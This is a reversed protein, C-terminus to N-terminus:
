ARELVFVCHGQACAGEIGHALAVNAGEIQRDGAENRLQIVVEAVRALGAALVPHASLVGGSPNIPLGGKLETAGSDILDGAQGRGCFGLGEMWMLEMYSFADYIEALDIEETPDSIGAMQYAKRAASELARVDSLDRDGLHYTDTCHGVGKVWVPKKSARKAFSESALIVACAGDSVPSCDLLKLPDALMRSSLVDDVTIDLPIQAFPNNKANKHNKVSVKACHEETIGYRTMYARAQLASSSIAELGLVREYIPDFAANTILGPIGVSGKSQTIVLTMNHYGSLIRMLGMLLGYTGDGEVNTTPVRSSGTADTITMCSITRGDWFDNTCTITNDIMDMTLGADKLAGNTVEFAMEDHSLPSRRMYKTQAVGIIAVKEM